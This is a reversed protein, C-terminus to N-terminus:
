NYALALVSVLEDRNDQQDEIYQMFTEVLTRNFREIQVNTKQHYTTTYLNRIGMLNCVGQFFVSAFQPENETLVTEPAGYMFSRDRCFASSADTPTIGALPVARALKSCGDVIIWLSGNGTKTETLRGLLDTSLSAFPETRSFLKLM